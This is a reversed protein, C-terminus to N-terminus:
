DNHSFRELSILAHMCAHWIQHALGESRYTSPSAQWVLRHVPVLVASMNYTCKHYCQHHLAFLYVNVAAAILPTMVVSSIM